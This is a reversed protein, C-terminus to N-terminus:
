SAELLMSALITAMFIVMAVYITVRSITRENLGEDLGAAPQCYRTSTETRKHKTTFWECLAILNVFVNVSL